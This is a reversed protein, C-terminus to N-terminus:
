AVVDLIAQAAPPAAETITFAAAALARAADFQADHGFALDALPAGAEVHDGPKARLLLGAGHDIPADVRTRGAGLLMSARGILAARIGSVYGSTPATLTEGREARPFRAYDDIVAADGGQRDILMRFREVAAGSQLAGEARRRASELDPDLRAVVLLHSALM